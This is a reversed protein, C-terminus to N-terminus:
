AQRRTVTSWTSPNTPAMRAMSTPRLLLPLRLQFLRQGVEWSLANNGDAANNFTKSFDVLEDWTQPPTQILAKNNSCRTPKWVPQTAYLKGDYSVGQHRAGRLQSSKTPIPPKLILGQSVVRRAQEHPAAVTDAGVGAPGDLSLKQAATHGVPEYEFTVHPNMATTKRPPPKWSTKEPGDSEWMKLTVPDKSAAPEPEPTAEASAESSAAPAASSAAPESSAAPTTPTTNGCATMVSLVFLTALLLATIKRRKM